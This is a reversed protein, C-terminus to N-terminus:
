SKALIVLAKTLKLLKIKGKVNINKDKRAAKLLHMVSGKVLVIDFLM